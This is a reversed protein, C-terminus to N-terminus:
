RKYGIKVLFEKRVEVDKDTEVGLPSAGDVVGLIGRGQGTEAVIVEAPNATACYISCVEAVMVGAIQKVIKDLRTQGDGPESMIERLRRMIVRLVPESKM